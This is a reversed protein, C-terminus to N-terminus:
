TMQMGTEYDTFHCAQSAQQRVDNYSNFTFVRRICKCHQKIKRYASLPKIQMHLKTSEM